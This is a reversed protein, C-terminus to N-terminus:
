ALGHLDRKKGATPVNPILFNLGKRLARTGSDSPNWLNEDANHHAVSGIWQGPM